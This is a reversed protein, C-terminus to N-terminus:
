QLGYLSSFKQTLYDTYYAPSFPEGCAALMLEGSDKARGWHWINTRLWERIPALDGSACVTDFDMGGAVMAAKLQAGFASGLAYTPFYGLSGDSWHTDQLAGRADDPVDLGLYEKHKAAWLAPIDAAKAEGSFLMQELEYRILIHLPYTLEDADCRILCPEACNEALYLQHPTVRGLQGPFRRQLVELLPGAFAESRGVINEFFRSQAEHMGMSTGGKLSTMAYAPDVNQEYLTHGGEHLMSFVNSLVNDEYVHSAILVFGVGPGGTFPHETRGLWLADEDVGELRMLDGFDLVQMRAKVRAYSQAMQAYVRRNRLLRQVKQIDREKKVPRRSDPVAAYAALQETCFDIVEQPERLHEACEDSLQLLQNIMTAASLPVGGQDQPLEGEWYQVIQAALQWKQADGLMQADQEVGLRLGYEKVLNNASKLADY